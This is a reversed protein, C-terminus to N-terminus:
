ASSPMRSRTRDRPSPIHILSLQLVHAPKVHRALKTDWVEYSWAGLVSPRDVRILFDARGRWGSTILVGQYIADAGSRMADRTSQAAAAWGPGRGPDSIEAITRGEDRLKALYTREHAEGKAALLDAEPPRRQELVRGDAVEIELGTLYECELFHHLDSPSLVLAGDIRQM